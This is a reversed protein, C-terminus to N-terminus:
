TPSHLTPVSLVKLAQVHLYIPRSMSLPLLLLLFFFFPFLPSISFSFISIFIRFIPLFRFYLVPFLLPHPSSYSSFTFFTSFFSIFLVYLLVLLCFIVHLFFSSPLYITFLFSFTSSSLFIHSPPSSFLHFLIYSHSFSYFTFSSLVPSSLM